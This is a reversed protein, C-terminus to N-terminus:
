QCIGAYDELSRSEVGATAWVFEKYAARPFQDDARWNWSNLLIGRKHTDAMVLFRELIHEHRSGGMLALALWDECGLVLLKRTPLSEVSKSETKPFRIFLLVVITLIVGLHKPGARKGASTM